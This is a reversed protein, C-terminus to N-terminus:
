NVNHNVKETNIIIDPWVPFNICHDKLYFARPYETRKFKQYTQMEPVSYEILIGLQYGQSRFKEVWAARDKVIGVCHSFTCGPIEPMFSVEKGTLNKIWQHANDIRAKVIEPYKKLQVLGVSAETATPMTDWDAPFDIIGEDYYKVFRDLLKSNELWNVIRYVYPNFAVCVAVLYIWRSLGKLPTKRCNTIRFAKLKEDTERDNTIAMGGFISTMVKSINLGFIAADGVATVLQGQSRAGFSHAADQIVYIKHGFKKEARAIIDMLRCIDLPYGFIHTSIIVRTRPNITAELQNLDMNFGEQESDVFVPINGSKVIAHPVVVCTYAPCIIESNELGWVKLLAFLATRGLAFMTGYQCEFAPAFAQEFKSVAGTTPFTAAAIECWGIDAKLRPYLKISM